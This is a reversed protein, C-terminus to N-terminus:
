RVGLGRNLNLQASVGRYARLEPQLVLDLADGLRQDAVDVGVRDLLAEDLRDGLQAAVVADGTLNQCRDDAADNLAALRAVLDFEPEVM